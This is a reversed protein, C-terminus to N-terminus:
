GPLKPLGVVKLAFDNNGIVKRLLEIAIRSETIKDGVNAMGVLLCGRTDADSNGAHLLIAERGEVGVLRWVKKFHFPSNPEWGHPVCHYEGPPICSEGPANDRWKDELTWLFGDVGPVTLHGLTANGAEKVRTLTLM